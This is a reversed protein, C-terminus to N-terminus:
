GTVNSALRAHLSSNASDNYSSQRICVAEDADIDANEDDREAAAAATATLPL